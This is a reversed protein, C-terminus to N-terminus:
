QSKAFLLSASWGACGHLRILAKTMRKNSLVIDFSAVLLIESNQSTETSSCAKKPIVQYSVWFVPKREDGGMYFLDNRRNRAKGAVRVGM